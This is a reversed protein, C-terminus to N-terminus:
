LDVVMGFGSQLDRWLYETEEMDLDHSGVGDGGRMGLEVVRGHGDGGVRLVVGCVM